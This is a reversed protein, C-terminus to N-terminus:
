STFLKSESCFLKLEVRFSSSIFLFHGYMRSSVIFYRSFFMRSSEPSVSCINAGLGSESSVFFNMSRNESCQRTPVGEGNSSLGGGSTTAGIM